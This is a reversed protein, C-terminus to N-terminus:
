VALIAVGHGPLWVGDTALDGTGFAMVLYAPDEDLPVVAEHAALNAVVQLSGRTVVLWDGGADFSVGVSDLRDDRLEPM